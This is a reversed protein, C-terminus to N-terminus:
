AGRGDIALQPWGAEVPEQVEIRLTLQQEGQRSKLAAEGAPAWRCLRAYFDRGAGKMPDELYRFAARVQRLSSVTVIQRDAAAAPLDFDAYVMTDDPIATASKAAATPHIYIRGREADLTFAGGPADSTRRTFGAAGPTTAPAAADYLRFTTPNVAGVGTPRSASQGLTYWRGGTVPGLAERTAPVGTSVDVESLTGASFLGLNDLSIDRLTVDFGHTVQTTVDALRRAVPGDGAFVQLSESQVSWACGDTDGLYREGQYASDEYPDIYVRGAGVVVNNTHTVAM